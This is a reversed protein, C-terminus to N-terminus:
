PTTINLRFTNSVREELPRVSGGLWEDSHDASARNRLPWMLRYQGSTHSAQWHPAVVGAPGISDRNVRLRLTDHIVRNPPIVFPASLCLLVIHHFAPRWDEGSWWELQPAEPPSCGTLVLTEGTRNTYRFPIEARYFDSDDLRVEHEDGLVVLHPSPPGEPPDILKSCAAFFPLGALMSSLFARRVVPLIRM